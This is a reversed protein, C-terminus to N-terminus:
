ELISEPNILNRWNKIVKVYTTLMVKKQLLDEIDLRAKSSIEKIKSGNKGIIINKHSQKECIIDASIEVIKENEKFEKISVAIGHPIEEHLLYLTKERIIESILFKLSQDTYEDENFIFNLVNSIPLLKLIESLLINLNINKTSSFPIISNINSYNKFLNITEILKLKSIKDIKNIVLILPIKNLNKIYELEDQTINKSSDLVYLIIDVSSIATRLNKNMQKDLNNQSKHIGPTDVFVLQYNETESFKTIIGLINNRTTQTKPSVIAVKNGVILNILTSKGVNTKGIVGIYGFKYVKNGMNCWIYYNLNM